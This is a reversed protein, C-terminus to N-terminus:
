IENMIPYFEIDIFEFVQNVSYSSYTITKPSTNDALRKKLARKIHWLCIQVKANTWIKQAASIQKYDKDLSKAITKSLKQPDDDNENIDLLIDCKFNIEASENELYENTNIQLIQEYLKNSM